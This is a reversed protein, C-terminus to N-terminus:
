FSVGMKGNCTRRIMHYFLALAGFAHGCKRSKEWFIIPGKMKRSFFACRTVTPEEACMFLMGYKLFFDVPKRSKKTHNVCDTVSENGQRDSNEEINKYIKLKKQVDSWIVARFFLRQFKCLKIMGLYFHLISFIM